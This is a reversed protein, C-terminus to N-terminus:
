DQINILAFEQAALCAFTLAVYKKQKGYKQM